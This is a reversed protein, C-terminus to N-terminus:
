HYIWNARLALLDTGSDEQATLWYRDVESLTQGIFEVARLSRARILTFRADQESGPRDHQKEVTILERVIREAVPSGEAALRSIKFAAWSSLAPTAPETGVYLATLRPIRVEVAADEVSSRITNSREVAVVLINLHEELEDVQIQVARAENQKNDLHYQGMVTKLRGIEKEVWARHKGTGVAPGFAETVDLLIRRNEWVNARSQLQGLYDQALSKQEQSGIWALAILAWASRQCDVTQQEAGKLIDMFTRSTDRLDHLIALRSLKATQDTTLREKGQNNIFQIAVTQDIPAPIPVIIYKSDAGFYSTLRQEDNSQTM